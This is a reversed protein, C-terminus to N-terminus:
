YPAGSCIGTIVNYKNILDMAEMFRRWRRLPIPTTVNYPLKGATNLSNREEQLELEFVCLAPKKESSSNLRTSCIVSITSGAVDVGPATSTCTGWKMSITTFSQM